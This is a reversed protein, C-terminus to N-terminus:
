YYRLRRYSMEYVQLIFGILLDIILTLSSNGGGGGYFIGGVIFLIVM